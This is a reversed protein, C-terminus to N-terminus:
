NDNQVEKENLKELRNYVNIIFTKERYEGLFVLGLMAFFLFYSREQQDLIAIFLALMLFIKSWDLNVVDYIIKAVKKDLLEKVKLNFAIFNKM